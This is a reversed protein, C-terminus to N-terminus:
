DIMSLMQATDNIYSALMPGNANVTYGSGVEGNGYAITLIQIDLRESAQYYVASSDFIPILVQYWQGTNYTTGWSTFTYSTAGSYKTMCGLTFTTSGSTNTIRNGSILYIFSGGAVNNYQWGIGKINNRWQDSTGWKTIASASPQATTSSSPEMLYPDTESTWVCPYRGIANNNRHQAPMIITSSGTPNSNSNYVQICQWEALPTKSGSETYTQGSVTPWTTPNSNGTFGSFICQQLNFNSDQITFGKGFYTNAKWQPWENQQEIPTGLTYGNSSGSAIYQSQSLMPNGYFNSGNAETYSILYNQPMNSVGPTFLTSVPPPNGTWYSPTPGHGSGNTAAYTLSYMPTLVEYWVHDSVTYYGKIVNYYVGFSSSYVTPTGTDYCNIVNVVSSTCLAPTASGPGSFTHVFSCNTGLVYLQQFQAPAGSTNTITATFSYTGPSVSSTVGNSVINKSTM